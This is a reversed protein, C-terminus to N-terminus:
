SRPAPPILPGPDTPSHTPPVQRIPVQLNEFRNTECEQCTERLKVGSGCKPCSYHVIPIGLEELFLGINHIVDVRNNIVKVHPVHRTLLNIKGKFYIICIHEELACEYARIRDKPIFPGEMRPFLLSRIEGLPYTIGNQYVRTRRHIYRFNMIKDPGKLDGVWVLDHSGAYAAGSFAAGVSILIILLIFLFFIINLLLLLLLILIHLLVAGVRILPDDPPTEFLLMGKDISRIAGSKGFM